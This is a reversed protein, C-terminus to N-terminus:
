WRGAWRRRMRAWRRQSMTVPRVGQWPVPCFNDAGELFVLVQGARVVPTGYHTCEHLDPNDLDDEQAADAGVQVGVYGGPEPSSDRAPGWVVGNEERVGDGVHVRHVEDDGGEVDLYGELVGGLEKQFCDPFAHAEGDVVVGRVVDAGAFVCDAGSRAEDGKQLWATPDGLSSRFPREQEEEHCDRQAECHFLIVRGVRGVWEEGGGTFKASPVSRVTACVVCSVWAASSPGVSVWCALWKSSTVM